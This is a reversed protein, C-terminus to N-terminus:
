IREFYRRREWDTVARAFAADETAFFHGSHEVVAPGFAERALDSALFRELAERLSAPVRPLDAAAYM